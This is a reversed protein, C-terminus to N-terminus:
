WFRGERLRDALASLEYKELMEILKGDMVPGRRTNDLLAWISSVSDPSRRPDILDMIQQWVLVDHRSRGPLLVSEPPPWVSGGDRIMRIAKRRGVGPLGPINDSRDGALARVWSIRPPDIGWATGIEGATVLFDTSFSNIETQGDALQLVDTDESCLILRAHPLSRSLLRRVRALIDDAEFFPAMAVAIGAAHCFEMAQRMEAGLYGSAASNAKYAPDLRRRWALADPGDWAAILYDPQMVRAKRALAGAFLMLAGTPTGDSARLDRTRAARSCRVLLGTADVALVTPEKTGASAQAPRQPAPLPPATDPQGAASGGDHPGM